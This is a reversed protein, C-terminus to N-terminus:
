TNIHQIGERRGMDVGGKSQVMESVQTVLAVDLNHLICKGDLPDRYM